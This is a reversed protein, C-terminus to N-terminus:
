KIGFLSSLLNVIGDEDMEKIRKETEEHIEDVSKKALEICTNIDEDTFADTSQTLGHVLCTFEALLDLKDGRIAVKSRDVYLM